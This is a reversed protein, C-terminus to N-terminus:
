QITCYSGAEITLTDSSASVGTLALTGATSGNTFGTDLAWRMDTSATGVAAEGIGTPYSSGTSDYELESPAGSTITNTKVFSYTVLTPSSPGTIGFGFYGSAAAMWLGECHLVYSTSAAVPFSMITTASHTSNTYASTLMSKQLATTSISGQLTWSLSANLASPGATYITPTNGSANPCM